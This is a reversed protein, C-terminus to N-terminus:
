ENNESKILCNHNKAKWDDLELELESNFNKLANEEAIRQKELVSIAKKLAFDALIKEKLAIITQSNSQKYRQEIIELRTM